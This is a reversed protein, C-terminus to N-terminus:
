DNVYKSVKTLQMILSKHRVLKQMATMDSKMVRMTLTIIEDSFNDLFHALKEVEDSLDERLADLLEYALGVSIAFRLGEDGEPLEYKYSNDTRLRKWDPLRGNLKRFSGFEVAIDSGVAGAVAVDFDQEAPFYNGKLFGDVYEWSRPTAFAPNNNYTVSINTKKYSLFALIDRHIGTEMAYQLFSEAALNKDIFLHMAFRNALPPVLPKAGSQDERLNGAGVIWCNDPLKTGNNIERDLVLRYAAAQTSISANTLEDLFLISPKGSAIIQKLWEPTSFKMEGDAVYPLGGVDTPDLASLRLDILFMDLEYAISAVTFSKGMGPSGHIMVNPAIKGSVAMKALPMMLSKARGISVKNM